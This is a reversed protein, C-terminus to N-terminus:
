QLVAGGCQQHLSKRAFEKETPLCPVEVFAKNERLARQALNSLVAHEVGRGLVRCSLLFTDVKYESVKTEYMVVGVLGYDGFRDAVRVVLCRAHEGKLFDRIENENRRITTFNFQNTRFTLQSIRALQDDDAEAIEVRLQLGEIFDRLSVTQEHFQQRKANEKYVQTRDRDERTSGKCDFAWVHNLFSSIFSSQRPVQLTLVGPLNIRVDACDIPNDDIFIFSDVRLNLEDALSQINESKSKWNIRWSVLHKRKLVMDARQDFVTLVDKENNKSCLCLLKGSSMQDVM